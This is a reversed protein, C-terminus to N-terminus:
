VEPLIAVPINFLNLLEPDWRQQRINFLMTRSANTADTYHSKGGTLRWLLYCDITGFALSGQEALKRANPVNDLLWRLKSASFYPDILLGTKEQITELNGQSNLEECYDSTRRDQWVIARYIPKGTQRDWVVTTERQNTIGICAIDNFGINTQKIATYCSKLTTEWIEIADHEVWGDAPFHQTLEHQGSSVAIGSKDFILARTSTTGQDTALIYKDM